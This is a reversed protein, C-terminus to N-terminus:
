DAPQEGNTRKPYHIRDYKELDFDEVDKLQDWKLGRFILACDYCILAFPRQASFIRDIILAVLMPSMFAFWNYGQGMMVFSILSALGVIGVGLSRKFDHQKYFHKKQCRPCTEPVSEATIADGSLGLFSM